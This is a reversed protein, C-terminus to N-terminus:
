QALMWELVFPLTEHGAPARQVTAIPAPCHDRMAAVLDTFVKDTTVFTDVDVLYTALQNDGPTGTSYTRTAQAEAM